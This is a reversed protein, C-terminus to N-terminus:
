LRCDAKKLTENMSGSRFGQLDLSVYRYGLSKLYSLIKQRVDDKIVIQFDDPMIEIRATGAHDRVRLDKLGFDKMFNEALEVRELGAATIKEGYAFRSSLCPTAPKDWTPLGLTKSIDRIESKTLGADLLPSNVGNELAARRGPRWDEKDDANTGDLIFQFNEENAISRLSVFLEKKCYYCRDPPNNSYSENKLEDTVIIKHRIGLSSTMEKTFDLERKPLSDSAATVALIEDLSSLSAAKLLFTSDVGGSYAIVVRKMNHLRAKLKIFKDDATM